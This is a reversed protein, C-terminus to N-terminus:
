QVVVQTTIKQGNAEAELLYTGQSLAPRIYIDKDFSGSHGKIVDAYVQKGSIDTMRLSVDSPQGTTFSVHFQGQNPNPYLKLGTIAEKGVSNISLATPPESSRSANEKEVKVQKMEIKSGKINMLAQIISAREEATLDNTVIELNTKGGIGGEEKETITIKKGTSEKECTKITKKECVKISTNGPGDPIAHM